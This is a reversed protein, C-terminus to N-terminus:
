NGSIEPKASEIVEESELTRFGLSPDSQIPSLCVVLIGPPGNNWCAPITLKQEEM